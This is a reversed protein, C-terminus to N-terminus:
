NLGHRRAFGISIKYFCLLTFVILFAVSIGQLHTFFLNGFYSPDSLTHGIALIDQKSDIKALLSGLTVPFNVASIRTSLGVSLIFDISCQLFVTSGFIALMKNFLHELSNKLLIESNIIKFEPIGCVRMANYFDSRKYYQIRELVLDSVEPFIFLSISMGMLIKILFEDQVSGNLILQTLGLTLLMIGIIQPVSRVLNVIFDLLTSPWHLKNSRFYDQLVGVLWGTLLSFVVSITAILITNAFGETIMKFAPRNLYELNWFRVLAGVGLWVFLWWQDKAQYFNRIYLRIQSLSLKKM